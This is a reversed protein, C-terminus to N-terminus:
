SEMHFSDLLNMGMSPLLPTFSSIYAEKRMYTKNHLIFVTLCRNLLDLLNPMDFVSFLLPCNRKHQIYLMSTVICVATIEEKFKKAFVQVVYTLKKM